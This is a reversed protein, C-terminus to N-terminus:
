SKILRRGVCVLVMDAGLLLPVGEDVLLLLLEQIGAYLAAHAAGTLDLSHDPRVHVADLSPTEVGHGPGHRGM